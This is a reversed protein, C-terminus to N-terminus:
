RKKVKHVSSKTRNPKNSSVKRVSSTEGTFMKPLIRKIFNVSPKESTSKNVATRTRNFDSVPKAGFKDIISERKEKAKARDAEDERKLMADLDHLEQNLKIEQFDAISRFFTISDVKKVFTKLSNKRMISFRNEQLMRCAAYLSQDYTMDYNPNVKDPLRNAFEPDLKEYMSDILYGHVKYLAAYKYIFSPSNSYFQLYYKGLTGSNAIKTDDTFFEIVIDYYNEKQSESQLSMHIYFMEAIQCFNVIHLRKEKKIEQYKKEMKDQNIKNPIGFPANIFEDLTQYPTDKNPM